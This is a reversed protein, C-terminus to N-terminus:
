IKYVQWVAYKAYKTFKMSESINGLCKYLANTAKELTRNPGRKKHTECVVIGALCEVNEEHEKGHYGLLFLLLQLRNRIPVIFCDWLPSMKQYGTIRFLGIISLFNGKVRRLGTFWAM